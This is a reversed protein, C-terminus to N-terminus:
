TLHDADYFSTWLKMRDTEPLEIFTLNQAINLVKFATNQRDQKNLPLWVTDACDLNPNNTAAFDYIIGVMRSVAKMENKGIDDITKVRFNRFIYSLADGHSVGHCKQGCKLIRYTNMTPSQVNFRYMYTNQRPNERLRSIATRYMGHVYLRDTQMEVYENLIQEQSGHEDKFYFNRIRTGMTERETDSLTRGIDYPILETFDISSLLTNGKSAAAPRLLLAEDSASSLVVPINKSWSNRAQLRPSISIFGSRKSEIVPGYPWRVGKIRDESLLFDSQFQARLLTSSNVTFLLNVASQLGGTGNWGVFAALREVYFDKAEPM